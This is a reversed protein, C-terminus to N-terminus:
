SSRGTVHHTRGGIIKKARDLACDLVFGSLTLRQGPIAHRDRLVAMAELLMAHDQDTTRVHIYKTVRHRDTKKADV